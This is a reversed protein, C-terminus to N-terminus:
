QSLNVNISIQILIKLYKDNIHKALKCLIGGVIKNYTLFRQYVETDSRTWKSLDVYISIEIFKKM